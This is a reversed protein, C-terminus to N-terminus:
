ALDLRDARPSLERARTRARRSLELREAALVLEDYLSGLEDPVAARPAVSVVNADGITRALDILTRSARGVRQGLAFATLVGVTGSAVLIVSLATLDHSSLFMTEAAIWAGLAVALLVVSSTAAIQVAFSRRELLRLLLAGLFSAAVATGAGIATLEVADHAPVDRTVALLVVALGGAGAVLLSSSEPLRRRASM